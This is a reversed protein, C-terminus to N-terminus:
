GAATAESKLAMWLRCRAEMDSSKVTYQFDFGRYNLTISRKAPMLNKNPLQRLAIAIDKETDLITTKTIHKGKMLKEIAEDAIQKTKNSLLTPIAFSFLAEGIKSSEVVSHIEDEMTTFDDSKLAVLKDLMTPDIFLKVAAENLQIWM